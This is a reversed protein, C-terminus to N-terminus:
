HLRNAMRRFRRLAGIRMSKSAPLLVSTVDTVNGVAEGVAITQLSALVKGRGGEVRIGMDLLSYDPKAQRLQRDLNGEGWV